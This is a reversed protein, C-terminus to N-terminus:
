STAALALIAERIAPAEHWYRRLADELPPLLEARESRLARNRARLAPRNVRWWPVSDILGTDLQAIEAAMRVLEAPTVTGPNSLHWVGKEGDVLLDLAAHVLDPLYTASLRIDNAVAIREGRALTGLSSRLFDNEALPAFVKGPRIVLAEPCAALVQREGLLKSEGYVNLPSPEDGEVYPARQAGDFVHDSSFTLLQVGARACAAALTAAGRTNARICEQEDHEAEDVRSYGACNVLAWPRLAAIATGVAAEDCIDLERRSFVRYALGRLEAARVFGQALRGGAGTILIPRGALRDSSLQLARFEDTLPVDPYCEDHGMQAVSSLIRVSRRWWGPTDLTPHDFTGNGTLQQVLNAIATPRPTGGRLDYAGPEYFGEQRTLLSNWDHAGLLSWVTVARVDAGEARLKGPGRWVEMFWRLQEERTCGIHAETVALPLGYRQWAERLV